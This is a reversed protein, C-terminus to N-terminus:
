DISSNYVWGDFTWPESLTWILDPRTAAIENYVRWTSALKSVGGQAATSLCLLAVVDGADTHFVQKDTTYAPAGIRGKSTCSNSLDKIHNLMVDAPSGNFSNDQRGRIPAIHSSIGTYIIINDQRNHRDVPLGRVVKFGHGHHLEHSVGRLASHLKPSLPFTSENIYGLPKNLGIMYVDSIILLLKGISSSQMYIGKFHDLAREIEDVEDGSLEYVWNYHKEKLAQHDGGRGEWVLDSELKQPYGPPLDKKLTGRDNALRSQARAQWKGINPAYEIDPQQSATTVVTTAM